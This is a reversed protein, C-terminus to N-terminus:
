FAPSGCGPRVRRGVWEIMLLWKLEVRGRLCKPLSGVHQGWWRTVWIDGDAVDERKM